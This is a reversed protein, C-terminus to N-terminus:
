RGSFIFEALTMGTMKALASIIAGIWIALKKGALSKMLPM